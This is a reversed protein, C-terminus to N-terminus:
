NETLETLTNENYYGIASSRFLLKLLYRIRKVNM